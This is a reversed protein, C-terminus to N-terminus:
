KISLNPSIKKRKEKDAYMREDATKIIAEIDMDTEIVASEKGISAIISYEKASAEENKSIYDDLRERVIDPTLSVVDDTILACAFEDGGYRASIGNRSSFNKIASAMTRIAFDGDIHGYTDNIYKLGDMDISFLTLIKSQNEKARTMERLEDFFGRRNLIGTLYDHSSAQEMVRNAETLRSNLWTLKQNNKVTNITTSIFMGFEESRRLDRSTPNDFGEILYGYVETRTYLLRFMLLNIGSGKETIHLFDPSIEEKSFYVGSKQLTGENVDLISIYEKSEPDREDTPNLLEKRIAAFYYNNMWLGVAFECLEAVDQLHEKEAANFLMTNMAVSHKIHDFYSDSLENVLEDRTRAGPIICGCSHNPLVKMDLTSIKDTSLHAGKMYAEIQKIILRVEGAYDPAVTAIPPYNLRARNIGDFGTVIIDEPIKLGAAKIVDSAAIAMADNACVIAEPLTALSLLEHAAARAPLDWYDGYRLLEPEFPIGNEALAEKYKTIRLESFDNGENGAIMAIRKCGHHNIVHLVMDKFGDEYNMSINVCGEVNRELSFVPIGKRIGADRISELIPMSTILEAMIVLAVCPMSDILDLLKLENGLKIEGQTADISFNLAAVLYDSGKCTNNLESLFSYEKDEYLWCGCVAIIKRHNDM